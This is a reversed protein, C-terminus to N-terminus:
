PDLDVINSGCSNLPTNTGLHHNNMSIESWAYWEPVRVVVFDSPECPLLM